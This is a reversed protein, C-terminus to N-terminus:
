FERKREAAREERTSQGAFESQGGWTRPQKGSGLSGGPREPSNGGKKRFWPGM